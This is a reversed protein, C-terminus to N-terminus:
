TSLPPPPPGGHPGGRGGRPWPWHKGRIRAWLATAGARISELKSRAMRIWEVFKRKGTGIWGEVKHKGLRGAPAIDLRLSVGVLQTVSAIVPRVSRIWKAKILSEGIRVLSLGAAITLWSWAVLRFRPPWQLALLAAAMFSVATLFAGHLRLEGVLRRVLRHEGPRFLYAAFLGPVAALVAAAIEGTPHRGLYEHAFWGGALMAFTIAAVFMTGTLLGSTDLNFDIELQARTGLRADNVYLHIRPAASAQVVAHPLHVDHIKARGIFLEDHSAVEIHYSQCLAMNALEIDFQVSGFGLIWDITQTISPRYRAGGILEDYDFKLIRRDGPTGNVLVYLLYGRSLDRALQYAGGAPDLSVSSRGPRPWSFLKPSELLKLQRSAEAADSMVAKELLPLVEARVTDVDASALEISALSQVLAVDVPQSQARMIVPVATGSADVLDFNTLPGKRFFGLPLMLNAPWAKRSQYPEKPITFDISTHWRVRRDDVFELTEVRRNVWRWDGILFLVEAARDIPVDTNGGEAQDKARAVRV